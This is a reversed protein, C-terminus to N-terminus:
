RLMSSVYPLHLPSLGEFLLLKLAGRELRSRSSMATNFEILSRGMPGGKGDTIKRAEGILQDSYTIM